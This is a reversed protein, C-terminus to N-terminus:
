AILQAVQLNKTGVVKIKSPDLPCQGHVPQLQIFFFLPAELDLLGASARYISQNSVEDHCGGSFM